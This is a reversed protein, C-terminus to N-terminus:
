RVVRGLRVVREPHSLVRPNQTPNESFMVVNAPQGVDFGPSRGTARYGSASVADVVSSADMGMEWLRIAELAVQHSGVALDTGTLLHVGAELAIGLNSVVNELGERLLRGGSSDAGIQDIVTEVQIITPVWIGGRAGLTALDEATLFLGHEISHAGARVAASPVERAMTHVAVRAGWAVAEEVATSFETETFNSLPGIGKRPWDGILKVWGRAETAADRIAPAVGGPPIIRGFGPWYGGDVSCIVGAAEIEPRDSPPIRDMMEVVTLDSWGKDLILGLGSALADAVNRAATEIDGGRHDDSKKALHAHADVLGPIAWLGDGLSEDPTGQQEMWVGDVADRIVSEGDPLRLAVRLHM